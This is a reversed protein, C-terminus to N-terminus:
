QKRHILARIERQAAEYERLDEEIETRHQSPFWDFELLAKMRGVVFAAAIRERLIANNYSDSRHHHHHDPTVQTTSDNFKNKM